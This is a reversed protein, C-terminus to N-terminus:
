TTVEKSVSVKGSLVTTVVGTPSVMELDYVGKTWAFDDTATAPISLTITKNAADLAITLVNLPSDGAETSALVTGGVKDKIKMRASYGTIDVPTNYQLFGGDTYPPWENGNDDLPAMGNFEVTNADVVTVAHYDSAKPPDNEANIQKPTKVRTVTARWGPPCGHGAVTLRPAGFALSIGTIPKFVIPDTEWRIQLSFTKGQRITLDKDAM